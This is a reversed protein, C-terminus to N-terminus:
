PQFSCLSRDCPVFVQSHWKINQYTSYSKQPFFYPIQKFCRRFACFGQMERCDKVQQSGTKNGSVFITCRPYRLHLFLIDRESFGSSHITGERLSWFKLQNGRQSDLVIVPERESFGSSHITGERLIWFQSHNGRQSDLVIFPERESFGSSHITKEKWGSSLWCFLSKCVERVSLFEIDLIQGRPAFLTM